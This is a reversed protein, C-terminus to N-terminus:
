FTFFYRFGTKTPPLMKFLFFEKRSSESAVSDKSYQDFSENNKDEKNNSEEKMKM